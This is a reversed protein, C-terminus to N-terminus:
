PCVQAMLRQRSLYSNALALAIFALTRKCAETACRALDGFALCLRPRHDQEFANGGPVSPNVEHTDSFCETSM